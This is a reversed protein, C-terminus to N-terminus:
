VHSLKGDKYPIDKLVMVAQFIYFDNLTRSQRGGRLIGLESLVRLSLRKCCYRLVRTVRECRAHWEPASVRQTFWAERVVM